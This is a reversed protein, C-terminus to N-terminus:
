ETLTLAELAELAHRIAAPWEAPPLSWLEGQLDARIRYAHIQRDPRQVDVGDALWRSITPQSVGHANALDAQTLKM